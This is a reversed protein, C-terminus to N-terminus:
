KFFSLFKDSRSLQRSYIQAKLKSNYKLTLVVSGVLAIFLVLGAILFCSLFYNYLSQGLVDINYLTDFLVELNAYKALFLDQTSFIKLTSFILLIGVLFCLISSYLYKFFFSINFKNFSDELKVNIMMVVFLFLVAVAGVYIIVFTVGLFEVNFFFLIAAANCFTLILFIVSSIPNTSLAVFLGCFCLLICLFIHIYRM